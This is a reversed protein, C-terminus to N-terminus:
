SPHCVLRRLLREVLKDVVVVHVDCGKRAHYKGLQEAVLLFLVDVGGIQVGTGLKAAEVVVVNLRGRGGIGGLTSAVM